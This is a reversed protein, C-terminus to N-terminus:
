VFWVHSSAAKVTCIQNARGPLDEDMQQAYEDEQIARLERLNKSCLSTTVDWNGSMVGDDFLQTAIDDLHESYDFGYKKKIADVLEQAAKKAANNM